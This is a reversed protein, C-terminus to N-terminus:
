SQARTQVWNARRRIGVGWWIQDLTWVGNARELNAWLDNPFTCQKLPDTYPISLYDARQTTWWIESITFLNTIFTNNKHIYNQPILSPSHSHQKTSRTYFFFFAWKFSYSQKRTKHLWISIGPSLYSRFKYILDLAWKKKNSFDTFSLFLGSLKLM